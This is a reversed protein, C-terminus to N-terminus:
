ILSSSSEESSESKAVTEEDSEKKTITIKIPFTIQNIRQVDIWKNL